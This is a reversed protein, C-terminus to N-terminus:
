LASSCITVRLVLAMPTICYILDFQSIEGFQDGVQKRVATDSTERDQGERRPNLSWAATALWASDEAQDVDLCM